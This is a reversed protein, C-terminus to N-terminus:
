SIRINNTLINFLYQFITCLARFFLIEPPCLHRRPFPPSLFKQIPPWTKIPPSNMNSLGSSICYISIWQSVMFFWKAVLFSCQKKTEKVANKKVKKPKPYQSLWFYNTGFEFICTSCFQYNLLPWTETWSPYTCQVHFNTWINFSPHPPVGGIYPLNKGAVFNKQM